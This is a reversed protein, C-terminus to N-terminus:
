INRKLNGQLKDIDERSIGSIGKRAAKNVISQIFNDEGFLDINNNNQNEIPNEFVTPVSRENESKIEKIYLFFIFIFLLFKSKSIKSYSANAEVKSNEILEHFQILHDCLQLDLKNIDLVFQKLTM